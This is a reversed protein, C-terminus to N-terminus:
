RIEEMEKLAEIYCNFVKQNFCVAMVKISSNKELFSNMERVAIRSAGEAPFGYAGTSISPFAISKIGHQKALSFCSQYCRALLEVIKGQNRHHDRVAM